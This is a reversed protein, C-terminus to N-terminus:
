DTREACKCGGAIGRAPNLLALAPVPGQSSETTSDERPKRDFSAKGLLWLFFGSAAFLSFLFSRYIVSGRLM